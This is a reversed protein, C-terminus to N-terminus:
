FGTSGFGAAGRTESVKNDLSDVQVFEPYLVPQVVLQAIRDGISVTYDDKSHNILAVKLEGSYGFDITGPANLVTLGNKAALGSRPTIFGVTNEPLKVSVGTGVLVWEGAPIVVEMNAHLDAGADDHHKRAPLQGGETLTTTITVTQTTNDENTM